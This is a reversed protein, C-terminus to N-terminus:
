TVNERIFPWARGNSHRSSSVGKPEEGGDVVVVEPIFAAVVKVRKGGERHAAVLPHIFTGTDNKEARPPFFFFGRWRKCNEGRAM